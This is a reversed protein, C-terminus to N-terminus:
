HILLAISITVYFFNVGYCRSLTGEYDERAARLCCAAFAQAVASFAGRHRLEVLATFSLM